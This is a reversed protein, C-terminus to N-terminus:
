LIKVIKSVTKKKASNNLLFSFLGMSSVLAVLTIIVAIGEGLVPEAILYAAVSIFIPLMFVVLANLLVNRTDTEIEVIDGVSANVTNLATAYVKQCKEVCHAANECMDCASQKECEVRAKDDMIEIVTGIKKM